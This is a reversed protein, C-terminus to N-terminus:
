KGEQVELLGSARAARVHACWLVPPVLVCPCLHGPHGRKRHIRERAMVQCTECIITGDDLRIVRYHARERTTDDMDVMGHIVAGFLDTPRHVNEM